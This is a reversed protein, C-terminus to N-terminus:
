AFFVDLFAQKEPLSWSCNVMELLFEALPEEHISSEKKFLFELIAEWTPANACRLIHIAMVSPLSTTFIACFIRLDNKGVNRMCNAFLEEKKQNDIDDSVAVCFLYCLVVDYRKIPM